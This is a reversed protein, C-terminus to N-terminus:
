SQGRRTAKRYARKIHFLLHALFVNEQTYIRKLVTERSLLANKLEGIEKKPSYKIYIPVGSLLLVVGIALQVPTCQSILYASFLIGFSPVLLARKMQLNSGLGKRRFAFISGSTALYAISMFFVSVSILLSLNGILSAMLATASQVIISIYPTKFKPHVRAFLKPFLGDAALAYGLRSTGIMGSEDSGAVSILAGVGVLAGGFLAL